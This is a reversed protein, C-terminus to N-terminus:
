QMVRDARALVSPPITLGFTKAAKLNVVLELTTPQEVPLDAPKAARLIKDVFTAAQRFRGPFSPGYAMLGGAEVIEGFAYIAPIRHQAALAVIAQHHLLTFADAPFILGGTGDRAARAFAPGLEGPEHMLITPLLVVKLARAADEMEKVFPPRPPRSALIAVRAISPVTEKLVEVYKGGVGTASFALGTFNGGPRALSQAFGAEVPDDVVVMVVPITRTVKQLAQNERLGTAVIVDVGLQALEAALRPVQGADGGSFRPEVRVNQGDVWGLTRLGEFFAEWRSPLPLTPDTGISLLGIVPRRAAPQPGAIGPMWALVGVVVACAAVM